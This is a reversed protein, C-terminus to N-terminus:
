RNGVAHIKDDSGGFILLGNAISIDTWVRVDVDDKWILEGSGLDVAFITSDISFYAVGNAVSPRSIADRDKRGTSYRWVLSGSQLDFAHLAYSSEHFGVGLVLAEAVALMPQGSRADVSWRPRATGTDLVTLGAEGDFVISGNFAVVGDYIRSAEYSPGPEGTALDFTLIRASEPVVVTEADV